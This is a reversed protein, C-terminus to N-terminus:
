GCGLCSRQLRPARLTLLPSGPFRIHFHSPTIVASLAVTQMHISFFTFTCLCSQGKAFLQHCHPTEPPRHLQSLEACRLTRCCSISFVRCQSRRLSQEEASIKADTGGCQEAVVSHTNQMLLRHSEAEILMQRSLIHHTPAMFGFFLFGKTEM